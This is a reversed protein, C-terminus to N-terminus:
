YEASLIAFTTLSGYCLMHIWVWSVPVIATHRFSICVSICSFWEWEILLLLYSSGYNVYLVFMNLSLLWVNKCWEEVCMHFVFLFGWLGLKLIYVKLCTLSRQCKYLHNSVWQSGSYVLPNIKLNECNGM